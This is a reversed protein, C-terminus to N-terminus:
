KKNIIEEVENLKDIVNNYEKNDFMVKVQDPVNPAIVAETSTAEEAEIEVTSSATTSAVSTTATTSATLMESIQIGKDDVEGDAAISVEDDSSTAIEAEGEVEDELTEKVPKAAAIKEMKTKVTEIEKNFSESLKAVEEQNDETNFEPDALVASIDKAHSTAFQVAMKDRANTDMVTNLKAKESIVRAIYLSDNPKAQSFLKHGFISSSVLLLFFVGLAFAPQSSAKAFSRFNIVFGEWASLKEAGSNSIQTLFLDRNSTLWKAEPNVTKLNNLKAILDKNNM